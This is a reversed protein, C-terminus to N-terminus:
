WTSFVAGVRTDAAAPDNEYNHWHYNRFDYGGRLDGENSMLLEKADPNFPDSHPSMYFDSQDDSAVHFQYQGTVPAEFFGTIKDFTYHLGNSTYAIEASTMLETWAIEDENSAFNHKDISNKTWHTRRLGHQGPYRVQSAGPVKATTQCEISYYDNSM